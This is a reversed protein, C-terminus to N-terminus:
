IIRHGNVYVLLFGDSYRDILVDIYHSICESKDFYDFTWDKSKARLVGHIAMIEDPQIQDPEITLDLVTRKHTKFM